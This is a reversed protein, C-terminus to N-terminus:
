ISKSLFAKVRMLPVFCICLFFLTFLGTVFMFEVKLQLFANTTQLHDVLLGVVKDKKKGDLMESVKESQYLGINKEIVDLELSVNLIDRLQVGTCVLAALLPLITIFKMIINKMDLGKTVSSDDSKQCKVGLVVACHYQRSKHTEKRM